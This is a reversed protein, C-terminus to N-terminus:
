IIKSTRKLEPWEIIRHNMLSDVLGCLWNIRTFRTGLTHDGNEVLYVLKTHM